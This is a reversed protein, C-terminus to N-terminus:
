VQRPRQAVHRLSQAKGTITGDILRSKKDSLRCTEPSVFRQFSNLPGEM